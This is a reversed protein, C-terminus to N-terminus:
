RDIENLNTTNDTSYCDVCLIDFLTDKQRNVQGESQKESQRDTQNLKQEDTHKYTQIDTHM